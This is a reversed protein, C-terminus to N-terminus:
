NSRRQLGFNGNERVQWTFASAGRSVTLPGTVEAEGIYLKKNSIYAVVDTKQMFSMQTNDITVRFESDKKGIELGNIDFRMYTEIHEQYTKLKGDVEETYTRVDGVSTTVGKVDQVVQSFKSQEWSEFDGKVLYNEAVKAEISKELLKLDVDFKKTIALTENAIQQFLLAKDEDTSAALFEQTDIVGHTATYQVKPYCTTDDIILTGNKYGKMYRSATIDEIQPTELIYYVEVPTGAKAQSGLWECWAPVTEFDRYLFLQCTAGSAFTFGLGPSHPVTANSHFHTSLIPRRDALSTLGDPLAIAFRTYVGSGTSGTERRWGSENGDLTLKGIRRTVKKSFLDATDSVYWTPTKIDGEPVMKLPDQMTITQEQDRPEQYTRDPDLDEEWIMINRLQLTGTFDRAYLMAKAQTWTRGYYINRRESYTAWDSSGSAPFPVHVAQENVWHDTGSRFSWYVAAFYNTTGKTAGIWRYEFQIRYNKNPIVNLPMQYPLCYGALGPSLSHVGDSYSYFAKYMDEIVWTDRLINKGHTKVNLTYPGPVKVVSGDDQRQEISTPNGVFQIGRQYKRNEFDKVTWLGEYVEVRFLMSGGTINGRLIFGRIGVHKPSFETKTRFNRVIINGTACDHGAIQIPETLVTPTDVSGQYGVDFLTATSTGVLTNSEIRIVLTYDTNERYMQRGNPSNAAFEFFNGYASNVSGDFRIADKGYYACGGSLALKDLDAFINQQTNGELSNLRLIGETNGEILTFKDQTTHETKPSNLASNIDGYQEEIDEPAPSWATPIKGDELKIYEIDIYDGEQAFDTSSLVIRGITGSWSWPSPSSLTYWQNAVSTPATLISNNTTKDRPAAMLNFSKARNRRYRITCKLERGGELDFATPLFVWHSAAAATRRLRVFGEHPEIVWYEREFQWKTKSDEHYNGSTRLLNRGGIQLGNIEVQVITAAINNNLTTRANYYYTFVNKFTTRNITSTESMNTLIPTIYDRLTNYNSVYADKNVKYKDAQAVILPYEGKIAEWEKQTELKEVSTLMGDNAMDSLKKKSEEAKVDVNSIAEIIDEPAASWETAKNGLEIKLNKVWFTGSNAGGGSVYTSGRLALGFFSEELVNGTLKLEATYRKYETTLPTGPILSGATTVSGNANRFYADLADHRGETKADFSLMFTKGACSKMYVLDWFDYLVLAVSSKEKQTDKALNRGSIQIKDIETATLAEAVQNNLTARADYYETFYNRFATGVIDSTTTLDALLPNIYVRLAEYKTYLSASSVGYKDAQAVLKVHEKQLTNFEKLTAQKEDATLKNDSAMDELLQKSNEAKENVANIDFLMDEPSLKYDTAKKGLEIQPERYQYDVYRIATTEPTALYYGWVFWAQIDETFTYSLQVRCWENDVLQDAIQNYTPNWLSRSPDTTADPATRMTFFTGSPGKEAYNTCFMDVSLTLVDGKKFKLFSRTHNYLPTDRRAGAPKNWAVMLINATPKDERPAIVYTYASSGGWKSRQQNSNSIYNRGGSVVNGIEVQAVATAIQNNLDTRENYYDTFKQRFAEGVIDTTTNLNSLIPTIYTKLAEYKLVYQTKNVGYKDAQAVVKPFEGVIADWDGKTSQKEDSTLKNDNSMDELKKKSEEAKADVQALEYLTDEPAASWDTAVTGKEVKVWNLYIDDKESISTGAYVMFRLQLGVVGPLTKITRKYILFENQVYTIPDYSVDVYNSLSDNSGSLVHIHLPYYATVLVAPATCKMRMTLTYETDPQLEAFENKISKKGHICGDVIDVNGSISNLAWNRTDKFQGSNMLLNRGGIQIKGIETATVASAILNNLDTRANYYETFMRRFTAGSIDTTTTLNLLIPTIYANLAEYKAVYTVKDVKYKTAQSTLKPYEGVIIDWEKKTNQKEEPTIKNDNAIDSLQQLSNEAKVNVDQIDKLTDEPALSYGTDIIGFEVKIERFKISATRGTTTANMHLYPTATIYGNLNAPAKGKYVVRSWKNDVLQNRIMAQTIVVINTHPSDEALTEMCRIPMLAADSGQTDWKPCFVEFSVIFDEQSKIQRFLRDLQRSTASYEAGIAQTKSLHLIKSDPKDPEAPLIQAVSTTSWRGRRMQSDLVWNRGGVAVANTISDIVADDDEPALTYETSKNGSELKIWEITSDVVVGNPMTYVQMYYNDGSTPVKWAAIKGVFIGDGQSTLDVEHVSGGSNYIAFARKGTGLVGKLTVIYEKGEIPKLNGYYYNAINYSSNKTYVNSKKLLNRGGIKIKDVITNVDEKSVKLKISDEMVLIKADIRSVNETVKTDLKTLNEEVKGVTISVEGVKVSLEAIQSKMYTVYKDLDYASCSWDLPETGLHLMAKKVYSIGIEQYAQILLYVPKTVDLDKPTKFSFWLREWVQARTGTLKSQITHTTGNTLSYQLSVTPWNKNAETYVDLSFVYDKDPKVRGLVLSQMSTLRRTVDACHFKFVPESFKATDYHAHYGTQPSTVAADYDSWLSASVKGNLTIDWPNEREETFRYDSNLIINPFTGDIDGIANELMTEVETYSAKLKIANENNTIKTEHQKIIEGQNEVSGMVDHVISAIGESPELSPLKMLYNINGTNAIEFTVQMATNEKIECIHSNIGYKAPVVLKVKNNDSLHQIVRILAKGEELSISQYGVRYAEPTYEYQLNVQLGGFTVRAFGGPQVTLVQNGDFSAKNFTWDVNSFPPLINPKFKM